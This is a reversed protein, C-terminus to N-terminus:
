EANVINKKSSGNNRMQREGMVTHGNYKQTNLALCPFYSALLSDIKGVSICQTEIELIDEFDVIQPHELPLGHFSALDM